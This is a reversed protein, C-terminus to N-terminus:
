IGSSKDTAGMGRARTDTQANSNSRSEDDQEGRMDAGCNPCFDSLEPLDCFEEYLPKAKCVSCEYHSYVDDKVRIWEGKVEYNIYTWAKVQNPELEEWYDSISSGLVEWHGERIRGFEIHENSLFILVKTMEKPFGISCNTWKLM